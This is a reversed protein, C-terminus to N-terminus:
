DITLRQLVLRLPIALLVSDIMSFGHCHFIISYSSNKIIYVNDIHVYIFLSSVAVESVDGLPLFSCSFSSGVRGASVDMLSDELDALSFFTTTTLGHSGSTLIESLCPSEVSFLYSFFVVYHTLLVTAIVM